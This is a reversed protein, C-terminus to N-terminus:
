LRSAEKQRKIEELQKKFAALDSTTYTKKEQAEVKTGTLFANIAPIGAKAKCSTFCKGILTDTYAETSCPGKCCENECGQIVEFLLRHERNNFVKGVKTNKMTLNKVEADTFTVDKFILKVFNTDKDIMDWIVLRRLTFDKFLLESFNGGNLTLDGYNQLYYDKNM